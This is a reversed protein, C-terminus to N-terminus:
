RKIYKSLDSIRNKHFAISASMIEKEARAQEKDKKRTEKKQAKALEKNFEAETVGEMMGNYTEKTGIGQINFDYNRCMVDKAYKVDSVFDDAMAEVQEGKDSHHRLASLTKGDAESMSKSALSAAPCSLIYKGDMTYLDAGEENWYATVPVDPNYGMHKAILAISDTDTPVDFRYKEGNKEITMISRQYSLDQRSVNGTILRWHRDDYSEAQPNKWQAFWEVPTLGNSMRTNNWDSVATNLKTISESYTPLTMVDYYDPNAVSELSHANWSTEPLNFYTKFRRKFLKFTLEAPNAQSNGPKITRFNRCVLQLYEKSEDSTYAGHNDSIFDMVETRGNNRLAMTMASRLMRVDEIHQSKWSVAYGIICRSAVDSILMVYLKMMRWRGYQDQYRYPVVGSGDSAWLSNAFELPRAPVYPRYTNRFHKKGHREKATLMKNTWINTYHNFTSPKIPIRGVAEMDAAYSEWLERKTGKAAGGPNLWYTMIIAQHEDIPLLEGTSYDILKYKGIIRRNDNCYKGSVLYRRLLEPDDPSLSIKKRLSDATKVKLGELDARRILEVCASLFDTRSTFGIERYRNGSEKIYRCWAMSEALQRSKDINFITKDGVQYHLFYQIDSNDILTKIQKSITKYQAAQRERSGRLNANEVAAILEDKGPLMDRYCRPKRNPIRDIDYYYQGNRRGWRWSKKNDGLFFDSQVAVKQWSAPLSKKYRVRCTDKLDKEKIGCGEVVMRQSVWVTQGDSTERILIDNPQIM